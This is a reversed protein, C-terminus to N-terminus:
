TQKSESFTYSACATAHRYFYPTIQHKKRIKSIKNVRVPAFIHGQSESFLQILLERAENLAQFGAFTGMEALVLFGKDEVRNWLSEIHTLRSEETPLDLLTFCSTVLDYM